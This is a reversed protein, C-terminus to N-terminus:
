QPRTRSRLLACRIVEKSEQQVDKKSCEAKVIAWICIWGMGILKYPPNLPKTRDGGLRCAKNLGVQARLKDKMKSCTRSHHGSPRARQKTTVDFNKSEGFIEQLDFENARTNQFYLIRLSHTLFFSRQAAKHDMISHHAMRKPGQRTGVEKRCVVIRKYRILAGASSQFWCFCFFDHLDLAEFMAVCTRVARARRTSLNIQELRSKIKQEFKNQELRSKITSRQQLPNGIHARNSSSALPPVRKRNSQVLRRFM